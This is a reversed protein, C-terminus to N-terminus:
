ASAKSWNTAATSAARRVEWFSVGALMLCFMSLGAVLAFKAQRSYDRDKPEEATQLRIIRSTRMPEVRLNAIEGNIKKLAEESQAM